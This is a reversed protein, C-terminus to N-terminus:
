KSIAVAMTSSQPSVCCYYEFLLLRYFLYTNWPTGSDFWLMPPEFYYDRLFSWSPVLRLQCRLENLRRWSNRWKKATQISEPVTNERITLLASPFSVSLLLRYWIKVHGDLSLSALKKSVPNMTVAFVPAVCWFSYLIICIIFIGKHGEIKEILKSTSLNWVYISNDESGM